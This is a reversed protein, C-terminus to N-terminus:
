RREVDNVTSLFCLVCIHRIWEELHRNVVVWLHCLTEGARGLSCKELKLVVFETVQLPWFGM